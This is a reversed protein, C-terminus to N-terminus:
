RDLQARDLAEVLKTVGLRRFIVKRYSAVTTEKLGLRHAVEKAALGRGLLRLIERQRPSLAPPALPSEPEPKQLSRVLHTAARASVPHEGAMVARLKHPLDTLPDSKYLFGDAGAAFARAPLKDCEQHTCLVARLKPLRLKAARILDLGNMRDPGLDLDTLLLDPPRQPLVRLATEANNFTDIVGLDLQQNLYHQWLLRLEAIDEVITISIVTTKKKQTAM